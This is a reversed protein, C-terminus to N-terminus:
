HGDRDDKAAEKIYKGQNWGVKQHQPSTSKVVAGRVIGLKKFGFVVYGEQQEYDTVYIIEAVVERGTFYDSDHEKLIVRDGVQYNRDNKRVEFNKHGKIVAEFYEPLIKISHSSKIKIKNRQIM